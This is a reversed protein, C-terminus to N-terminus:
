SSANAVAGFPLYLDGSATLFFFFFFVNATAIRSANLTLVYVVAVLFWQGTRLMAIPDFTDHQGYRELDKLRQAEHAAREEDSMAYGTFLILVVGGMCIAMSFMDHLM